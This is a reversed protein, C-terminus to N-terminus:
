SFKIVYSFEAIRILQGNEITVPEFPVVPDGDLLTGFTSNLDELTLRGQYQRFRLHRRSVKEDELHIHVLELARGIVLGEASALLTSYLPLFQVGDLSQLGLESTHHSYTRGASSTARINPKPQVAAVKDFRADVGPAQHSSPVNNQVLPVTVSVPTNSVPSSAIPEDYKPKFRTTVFAAVVLGLGGIILLLVHKPIGNQTTDESPKVDDKTSSTTEPEPVPTPEAEPEVEPLPEPEPEPMEWTGAIGVADMAQHVSIWQQSGEGYLSEAAQAFGFRADEFSSKQVLLKAAAQSVIKAADYIGIGVVEPGNNRNPHKGGSALLYFALNFISSNYHVGGNDKSKPWYLYNDMHDPYVVTGQHGSNPNAMDRGPTGPIRLRWFTRPVTPSTTSKGAHERWVRFTVGISDAISENLAGSQHLYELNSGNSVIGHALEHMTVEVLNLGADPIYLSQKHAMWVANFTNGYCQITPLGSQFHVSVFMNLLIGSDDISDMGLIARMFDYGEGLLEFAQEVQPKDSAPSHETRAFSQEAKREVREYIPSILPFNIGMTRCAAEFDNVQRNKAHFVLPV